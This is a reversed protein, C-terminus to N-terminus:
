AQLLGVCADKVFYSLYIGRNRAESEPSRRLLAAAVNLATQCAPPRATKAAQMARCLAVAVLRIRTENVFFGGAHDRAESAVM